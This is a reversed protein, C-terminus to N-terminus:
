MTATRSSRTLRRWPSNTGMYVIRTKKFSGMIKAKIKKFGNKLSETSFIASDNIAKWTLFLGTPFLVYSSFFVGHFAGVAGDKALKTGSIDIVWYAVFFLVSIIAPTGLGGKRILAGLPAGIFFFILCAISLAFKKNIEIDILRLTYNHYYRERSFSMLDFQLDEATKKAKLLAEIEENLSKWRGKDERDFNSTPMRKRVTDLQSNYRIYSTTRISKLNAQKSTSDLTGISDQGHHLQKLNMSKVQDNFRSSDSKQFAYNELPIIMEQRSFDIKQFQLTTDRYKKTNTEEYNTGDHLIFTLYSKDKSMKMIASDAITLSTNGKNKTHSYVMVGKMMGTDDDREDVRLIYGDIGNYFTGTPIKIEGKTKGIDDRLTYIKNYAVPLLDNSVFFAGVSIIGCIMALPIMIRQLSIGAAKIALLENNEGLTGLTMMASLLTALPLSLPLMTASGWAMFELIIKMSLGKGVLEDIYLWLFQMVLIFVVVFLIAFFPGVFSKIIFKDLKKM